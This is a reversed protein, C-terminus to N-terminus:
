ALKMITYKMWLISQYVHLFLGVANDACMVSNPDMLFVDFPRNTEPPEIPVAVPRQFLLEVIWYGLILRNQRLQEDTM